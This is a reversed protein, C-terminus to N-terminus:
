ILSNISRNSYNSVSRFIEVSPALLKSNFDKINTKLYICTKPIIDCSSITFGFLALRELRHPLIAELPISEGYPNKCLILKEISTDRLSFDANIRYFSDICISKCKSLVRSLSSHLQSVSLYVLKDLVDVDQFSYTSPSDMQLTLKTLSTPLSNKVLAQNYEPINLEKLGNPLVFPQLQQNYEGLHLYTLSKPLVNIGFPQQCHSIHLSEITPPFINEELTINIEWVYFTKIHPIQQFFAKTPKFAEEFALHLYELGTPLAGYEITNNNPLFIENVHSPITGCPIFTDTDLYININTIWSMNNLLQFDEINIITVGFELLNDKNPPVLFKSYNNIDQPYYELQTLSEPIMIKENTTISYTNSIDSIKLKVLHSPLNLLLEDATGAIDSSHNSVISFERLSQPLRGSWQKGNCLSLKLKVIGDNIFGCNFVKEDRIDTLDISIENILHKNKNMIYQDLTEISDIDYRIFIQYEIMDNHSLLSLHKCNDNLHDINEIIITTDRLQNNRICNRIYKNRWVEFYITDITLPINNYKDRQTNHTSM